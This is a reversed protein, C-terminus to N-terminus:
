MPQGAKMPSDNITAESDVDSVNGNAAVNGASVPGATSEPAPTSHAPTAARGAGGSAVSRTRMSDSPAAGGADSPPASTRAVNKLKLMRQLVGLVKSDPILQSVDEYDNCSVRCSHCCPPASVPSSMRMHVRPVIVSLNHMSLRLFPTRVRASPPRTAPAGPALAAYGMPPEVDEARNRKVGTASPPRQAGPLVLARGNTLQPTEEDITADSDYDAAARAAAAEAAAAAAARERAMRAMNRLRITIPQSRDLLAAACFLASSLSGALEARRLEKHWTARDRATRWLRLPKNPYRNGHEDYTSGSKCDPEADSDDLEALAAVVKRPPRGEGGEGDGRDADGREDGSGDDQSDRDNEAGGATSEGRPAASGERETAGPQESGSALGNAASSPGAGDAAETQQADAALVNEVNRRRRKSPLVFEAQFMEADHMPQVLSDDGADRPLGERLRCTVRETERLM